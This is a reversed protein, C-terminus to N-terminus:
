RVAGTGMAEAALLEAAAEDPVPNLLMGDIAPMLDSVIVREGAKLGTKVIAFNTQVLEIEIERIQLRNDATVTYVRNDHLAHRPVVIRGSRPTGRLEVEVYMNKTLPPRVGPVAQRYPDDIAVIIGIARTQPDVTDSMRAFRAPWQVVMDSGGLRVIAEVDIVEHVTDMFSGNGFSLNKGPDILLAVKDIPVQASVEAVDIGDAEILVAGQQAFQAEEIRVESIRLDFPAIITTQELDRKATALQARFQARTARLEDRQAPILNLTNELTQMSQNRALVAREEEDVTAQSANGRALLARKRELNKQNLALARKEIEILAGTNKVTTDLERLRANTSAISAEIQQIALEYDVPDIRLLVTGQELIAGKRLQPHYEVVKGSVEAIAAWTKEPKVIGYGLARPVAVTEIAEIIRVMASTEEVPLREPPQKNKIALVMAAVGILVAPIFLFRKLITRSRSTM